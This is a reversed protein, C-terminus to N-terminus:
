IKMLRETIVACNATSRRNFMFVPHHVFFLIRRGTKRSLRYELGPSLLFEKNLTNYNYRVGVQLTVDSSDKFHINDQVFGSFRDITLDAKNKLVKNLQLMNASYAPTVPLTM